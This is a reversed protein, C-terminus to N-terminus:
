GTVCQRSSGRRPQTPGRNRSWLLMPRRAGNRARSRFSRRRSGTLTITSSEEVEISSIDEGGSIISDKKRDQISVMGDEDITALDGTHFYGEARANFAQETIEPKNLYRDMVQNGAVVIEGISDGDRPVDIGDFCVRRHAFHHADELVLIAAVL